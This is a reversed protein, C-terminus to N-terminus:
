AKPDALKAPIPLSRGVYDEGGKWIGTIHVARSNDYDTKASEWNEHNFALQAAEAPTRAHVTVHQYIPVLYTREVTFTQMAAM